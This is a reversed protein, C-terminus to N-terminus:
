DEFSMVWTMLGFNGRLLCVHFFWLTSIDIMWFYVFYVIILIILVLYLIHCSNFLIILSSVSFYFLNLFPYSFFCYFSYCVFQILLNFSIFHCPIFKKLFFRSWFANFAFCIAILLIISWFQYMHLSVLCM